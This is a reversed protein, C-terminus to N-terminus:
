SSKEEELSSSVINEGKCYSILACFGELGSLYGNGDDSPWSLCGLTKLLNAKEGDEQRKV